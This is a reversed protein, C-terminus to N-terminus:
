PTCSQLTEFTNVSIWFRVKKVEVTQVYQPVGNFYEIHCPGESGEVLLNNCWFCNKQAEVEGNKYVTEMSYFLSLGRADGFLSRAEIELLKIDDTNYNKEISLFFEETLISKLNNVFDLEKTNLNSNEVFDNLKGQWVLSKQNSDLYNYTQFQDKSDGVLSYLEAAQANSDKSHIKSNLATPSKEVLADTDGHCSNFILPLCLLFASKLITRM